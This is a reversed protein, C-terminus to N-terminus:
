NLIQLYQLQKSHPKLALHPWTDIHSSLPRQHTKNTRSIPPTCPKDTMDTSDRAPVRYGIRWGWTATLLSLWWTIVSLFSILCSTGLLSVWVMNIVIFEYSENVSCTHIPGGYACGSNNCTIAYLLEWLSEM